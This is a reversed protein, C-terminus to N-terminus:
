IDTCSLHASNVLMVSHKWVQETRGSHKTHIQGSCLQGQVVAKTIRFWLMHEEQVRAPPATDPLCAFHFMVTDVDQAPWAHHIGPIYQAVCLVLCHWTGLAFGCHSSVQLLGIQQQFMM